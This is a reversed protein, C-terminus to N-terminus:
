GDVAVQVLRHGSGDVLWGLGPRPAPLSRRPLSVGLLDGDIEGAATMILGCRSRAVDRTWHGYSSRVADLRAAIALTVHRHRGDLVDRLVGGHDDVREADDVVVLLPAPGISAGAVAAGAVSAAGVSAGDVAAGALDPAHPVEHRRVPQHDPSGAPPPDLLDEPSVPRRASATLVRGGPTAVRWATAIRHLAASRGTRALGGIFVHDGLPLSLAAPALHEGDLGVLLSRVGSGDDRAGGVPEAPGRCGHRVELDAVRVREPLVDIGAPGATATRTPLGALHDDSHVVQAELGSSAIRLRGPRRDPVPRASCGLTRALAPDDLHFLWREAAATMAASGGAVTFATAIGVAPGDDFVRDLAALHTVDEVSALASRLAGLGDVLLVTRVRGDEAADAARRDIDDVLRRLLRFLRERDRLRVVAGCHEVSALADLAADGLADIVYLHCRDPPHIRCQAAAIALLTSTTGAGLSGVLALNGADVDWRLPRRCQRGPDDVLGIEDDGARPSGAPGGDIPASTATRLESRGISTPLPEHWPRHPAAVGNSRAADRISAVLTRLESDDDGAAPLPAPPAVDAADLPAATHEVSLTRRVAARAATCHASQFVVLEDPGLRMAARGPLGRPFRAPVDSGVVDHADVPDHLRMAIRLSTNARIEDSVVGAPRQTALLLHVGLSRGRQAVGVLSRLFEPLEQALAAFEDVVVVLRPLPAVGPRARYETLDGAAVARLARERRALEADLSILAREALGEDLDTVVGVTHPLGVCADFTAGGKYDVLVFTLHDPGVRAALAVVVTRLLESKGSGTTGAILAHPGDRVLDVDVPGDLSRGIVASPTPDAGASAWRAAIQHAEVLRGPPEEVDALRLDVPLPASAGDGCEPDILAALRRAVRDATAEAIGGVRIAVAMPAAPDGHWVGTGTAGIELVRSCITPVTDSDDVLVVSAVTPRELLRRLAGTRSGLASRDDVVVVTTHEVEDGHAGGLLRDVVAASGVAVGDPAAVHPLWRSWEWRSPDATVVALRWDAPGFWSALQIVISRAVALHRHRAGHLALSIGGGLSVAVPVSELVEARAIEIQLDPELAARDDIDIPVSWPLDGEGLVADLPGDGTRRAWVMTTAPAALAEAHLNLTASITPHRARQLEVRAACAAALENRFRQHESRARDAARRRRRRAGLVGGIWTSLSAAAGVLAFVAFLPQRLLLAMVAAGVIGIAAGLLGTAPPRPHDDLPAPLRLQPESWFPQRSPARRVVLRWPDDPVRDLSGAGFPPPAPRPGVRVVSSGIVVDAGAAIMQSGDAPRGAVRVPVRGTLQIFEVSGDEDVVLLGHHPEAAPDGLRLRSDPARGVAHRGPTLAIWPACAPGGTISAGVVGVANGGEADVAERGDVPARGSDCLDITAGHRLGAVADLRRGDPIVAGGVVLRGDTGRGLAALLDRVRDDATGPRITLREGGRTTVTFSSPPDTSM